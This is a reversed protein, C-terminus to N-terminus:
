QFTKGTGSFYFNPISPRNKKCVNYFTNISEDIDKNLKEKPVTSDLYARLSNPKCFSNRSQYPGNKNIADLQTLDTDCTIENVVCKPIEFKIKERM